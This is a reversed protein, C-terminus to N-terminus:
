RRYTIVAYLTIFALASVVIMAIPMWSVPTGTEEPLQGLTVVEKPHTDVRRMEGVMTEYQEYKPGLQIPPTRIFNMYDNAYRRM